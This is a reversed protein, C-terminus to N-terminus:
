GRHPFSDCFVASIKLPARDVGSVKKYGPFVRIGKQIRWLHAWANSKIRYKKRIEESVGEQQTKSHQHGYRGLQMVRTHRHTSSPESTSQVHDQVPTDKLEQSFNNQKITGQIVKMKLHCCRKNSSSIITPYVNLGLTWPHTKGLFPVLM